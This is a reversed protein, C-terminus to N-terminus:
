DAAGVGNDGNTGDNKLLGQFIYNVQDRLGDPIKTYGEKPEGDVAITFERTGNDDPDGSYSDKSVRGRMYNALVKKGTSDLRDLKVFWFELQTKNVLSEKLMDIVPSTSDLTEFSFDTSLSGVKAVNGSKTSTSDSDRSLEFDTSTLYPVLQADETKAKDLQRVMVVGEFGQLIKLEDAM